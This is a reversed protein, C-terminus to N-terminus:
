STRAAMEAPPVGVTVCNDVERGLAGTWMPSRIAPM